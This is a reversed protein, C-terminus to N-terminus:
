NETYTLSEQATAQSSTRKDEDTTDEMCAVGRKQGQKNAVKPCKDQNEAETGTRSHNNEAQSVRLKRGTVGHRMFQSQSQPATKSAQAATTLPTNVVSDRMDQWAQNFAEELGEITSPARYVRRQQETKHISKHEDRFIGQAITDTIATNRRHHLLSTLRNLAVVHEDRCAARPRTRLMAGSIISTRNTAGNTELLDDPSSIGLATLARAIVFVLTPLEYKCRTSSALQSIWELDEQFQAKGHKTASLNSSGISLLQRARMKFELSRRLKLTSSNFASQLNFAQKRLSDMQAKLLAKTIDRHRLTNHNLSDNLALTNRRHYEVAISDCGLGFDEKSERIFATPTSITLGFKHKVLQGISQDWKMLLNFDCPVVPFAYAISPIIATKLIHVAQGPSAYSARLGALKQKLNKTMRTHQHKWNLNMTIEVGLYLFPEDHQIFQAPQRQVLIKEALQTRM